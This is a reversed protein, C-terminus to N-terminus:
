EGSTGTCFLGQHPNCDSYNLGLTELLPLRNCQVSSECKLSSLRGTMFSLMVCTVMVAKELFQKMERLSM